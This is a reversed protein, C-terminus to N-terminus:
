LPSFLQLTQQGKLSTNQPRDLLRYPRTSDRLYGLYHDINTKINPIVWALVEANLQRVQCGINPSVTNGNLAYVGRMALVLETESQPGITYGYKEKMIIRIQTQLNQINRRSFFATVLNNDSCAFLSARMADAYSTGEANQEVNYTNLRSM